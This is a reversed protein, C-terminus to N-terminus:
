AISHFIGSRARVPNPILPNRLPRRRMWFINSGSWQLGARNSCPIFSVSNKLPEYAMFLAMGLSLFNELTMGARVGFYLAAAFGAAAVVEISPSIVQRYKVVKMSLKVLEKIRKEFGRLQADQLNYARIELASQLSETLSASLDGGNRQLARAKATM